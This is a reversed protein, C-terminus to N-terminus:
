EDGIEGQMDPLTYESLSPPTKAYVLKSAAVIHNQMDSEYKKALEPYDAALVANVIYSTIFGNFNDSFAKQNADSWRTSEITLGLYDGESTGYYQVLPALESSFIQAAAKIYMDIVDQEKSSLTVGTFLLNGQKDTQRKGIISLHKRVDSIIQTSNLGVSISEM